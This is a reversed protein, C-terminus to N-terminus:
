NIIINEFKKNNYNNISELLGYEFSKTFKKINFLDTSHISSLRVKIKKFENPNNGVKIALSEYDEWSTTILDQLNASKLISSCMRSAFTNGMKTIIPVKMFLADSATTGANYPYTDLILDIADFRALYEDNPLQHAFFIRKSDIHNKKFESILFNKQEDSKIYIYLISKEVHTLINIWSKMTENSIKYNNNFSGFVFSNHPFGLEKKNFVKKSIIKNTSNAQYSPLYFIKESYYPETKIDILTSDAIIYDIFNTGSTGLFGLYSIQIPAPRLNFISMRSFKTYGGLDIAIDINNKKILELSEVDSLESLDFFHDFVSKIKTQLSDESRKLSFGYVNFKTRDHNKLLDIILRSIPHNRFDSSIYGINIKSSIIKNYSYKNVFKNKAYKIANIFQIKPDDFLFLFSFPDLPKNSKKLSSTFQEKYFNLNDFDNLYAHCSYKSLRFEEDNPKLDLAKNFNKIAESYNEMLRFTDGLNHYYNAINKDIEIAKIYCNIAEQYYAFKKLLNGKNCFAEDCKPNLQIATDYFTIAEKLKNKHANIDAIELYVFYISKDYKLCILFNELAEDFKQIKKYLLGKHFYLPYFTNNLSIAKNFYDLADNYNNNERCVIGLNQLIQLDNSNVKYAKELFAYSKQYKNTQIYLIGLYKLAEFNNPYTKLIKKYLNKADELNGDQHMILAAKLNKDM